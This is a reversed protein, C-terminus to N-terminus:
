RDSAIDSPTLGFWQDFHQKCIDIGSLVQASNMGGLKVVCQGSKRLLRIHFIRKAGNRFWLTILKSKPRGRVEITDFPFTQALKAPLDSVAGDWDNRQDAYFLDVPANPFNSM